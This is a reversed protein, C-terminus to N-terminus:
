GLRWRTSRMAFTALGLLWVITWLGARAVGAHVRPRADQVEHRWIVILEEPTRGSAGALRTAIDTSDDFLRFYSGDGGLELALQLLSVRTVPRMLVASDGTMALMCADVEGGFCRRAPRSGSTALDRYAWVLPDPHGFTGGGLWELVDAPLASHLASMVAGDAAAAHDPTSRGPRPAFRIVSEPNGLESGDLDQSIVTGSLRGAAAGAMAAHADWAHQLAAVASAAPPTRNVFLFPGVVVTDRHLEVARAASLSDREHLLRLYRRHEAALSDIRAGLANRRARVGLTDGAHESVQVAGTSVQQGFSAVPASTSAAACLAAVLTVGYVRSSM